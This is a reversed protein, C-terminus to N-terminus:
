ANKVRGEPINRDDGWLDAMSYPKRTEPDILRSKLKSPDRDVLVGDKMPRGTKSQGPMPADRRGLPVIRESERLVVGKDLPEGTVPDPEMVTRQPVMDVKGTLPNRWSVMRPKGLANDKMWHDIDSASKIEHVQGNNDKYIPRMRGGIDTQSTALGVEQEMGSHQTGGQYFGALLRTATKGCEGCPHGKQLKESPLSKFFIEFEGHEECRYPYTPM